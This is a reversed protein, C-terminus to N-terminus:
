ASVIDVPVAAADLNLVAALITKQTQSLHETCAAAAADPDQAVIAECMALHEKLSVELRDPRSHAGWRM